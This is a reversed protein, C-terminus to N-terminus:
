SPLCSERRSPLLAAGPHRSNAFPVSTPAVASTLHRQHPTSLVLIRVPALGEHEFGLRIAAAKSVDIARNAVYPGRDMIRLIVSRRNRLNTVQVRTGFPLTRNAAVMARMDFPKGCAMPRGQEREGYWSAIGYQVQRSTAGGPPTYGVAYAPRSCLIATIGCIVILKM